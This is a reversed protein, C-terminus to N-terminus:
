LEIECYEINQNTAPKAISHEFGRVVFRDLRKGILQEWVTGHLWVYNCPLRFVLVGKGIGRNHNGANTRHISVHTVEELRRGYQKLYVNLM